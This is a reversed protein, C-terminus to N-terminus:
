THKSSIQKIIKIVPRHSQNLLKGPVWNQSASATFDRHFVMQSTSEISANKETKFPIETKKMGDNLGM